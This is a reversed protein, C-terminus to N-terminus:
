KSIVIDKISRGDSLTTIGNDEFVKVVEDVESKQVRIFDIDDLGFGEKFLTENRVANANKRFDAITTGRKKIYKIRGHYDGSYSIVDQRALNTPRFFIGRADVDSVKKIRTFFYSAGGTDIDVGSSGGGTIRTNIGKRIRGTTSTFEGGSKIVGELTKAVAGKPSDYLGGTTHQLTYDGMKDLIDNDSIDWRKWYRLGSGDANRTLGGPKYHTIKDVDIKMETKIWRKMKVVKMEDSLTSSDWIKKYGAQTHKNQLYVGRHLYLAEEYAASPATMSIGLDDIVKFAKNISAQSVGEPVTVNVVGHMARGKAESFGGDNPLFSVKTGDDASITYTESAFANAGREDVEAVGDKFRVTRYNANEDRRVRLDHRRPTAKKVKPKVKPKVKYFYQGIQDNKIITRAVKANEIEAIVDIYHQLMKKKGGSAKKLELVIKKKANEFKEMIMANYRGTKANSSVTWATTKMQGWYVDEPHVNVSLPMTTKPAASLTPKIAVFDDGLSQEIRRSGAPTVKFQLHTELGESGVEEWVLLNTDEIHDRDVPINYGNSKASIIEDIEIDQINRSAVKPRPKIKKKSFPKPIAVKTKTTKAVTKKQTDTIPAPIWACRCNPHLPISGRAEKITLISGSMPSCLSCVRDDGATAWEVEIGVEKVGLREFSDLQGEAHANIIETRAITLARKKTLGDITKNMERAIKRPNWGNSLGSALIRSTEQSMQATYGKLGEFSRMYLMRIKSMTEPAAFAQQLFQAKSGAFFEASDALDEKHTDIYARVAGKRYASDVYENSWPPQKDVELIGQDVQGQFWEQFISLKEPDTKFQFERAINLGLKIPKLGFADDGVLFKRVAGKLKKARVRIDAMFKQRLTTTRSPDLKKVTRRAM